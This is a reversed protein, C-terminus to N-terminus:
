ERDFNKHISRFIEKHYFSNIEKLNFSSQSIETFSEIRNIINSLTRLANSRIEQDSDVLAKKLGEVILESDWVKQGNKVAYALADSAYKIAFYDAKNDILLEGLKDLTTLPLEQKQFQEARGRSLVSAAQWM